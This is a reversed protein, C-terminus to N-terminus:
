GVKETNMQNEFEEFVRAETRLAFVVLKVRRCLCDVSGDQEAQNAAGELHSAFLRLREHIPVVRAMVFEKRFGLDKQPKSFVCPIPWQRLQHLPDNKVSLRALVFSSM